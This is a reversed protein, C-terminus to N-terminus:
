VLAEEDARHAWQAFTEDTAADRDALFRRVVRETWAVRQEPTMARAGFWVRDAAPIPLDLAEPLTLASRGAFLETLRGPTYDECPGLALVDDIAWKRASVADGGGRCVGGGVTEAAAAAGQGAGCCAGPAFALARVRLPGPLAVVPAM